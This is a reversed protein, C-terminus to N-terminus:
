NMEENEKSLDVMEIDEDSYAFKERYNMHLNIDSRAQEMSEVVEETAAVNTEPTELTIEEDSVETGELQSLNFGDDATQIPQYINKAVKKRIIKFGRQIGRGAIGARDWILKLLLIVLIALAFLVLIIFSKTNENKILKGRLVANVNETNVNGPVTEVTNESLVTEENASVGAAETETENSVEETNETVEANNEQTESEEEEPAEMNVTIKYELPTRNDQTVKLVIENVGAELNEADSVIKYGDPISFEFNETYPIDLTYEKVDTSYDPLNEGNFMIYEPADAVPAQIHVPVEPLETIELAGANDDTLTASEVKVSTEGGIVAHFTIMVRVRGGDASTGSVSIRGNGGENGGGVYTLYNEDYVIVAEYNGTKEGNDGGFYVGINFDQGSTANYETSGTYVIGKAQSSIDYAFFVAIATLIGAVITTMKAWSISSKNKEERKVDFSLSIM